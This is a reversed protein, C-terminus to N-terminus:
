SIARVVSVLTVPATAYDEVEVGTDGGPKVKAAAAMTGEGVGSENLKLQVVAVDFGERPKADPLGGGVFHAPADTVITIVTGKGPTTRQRAWRINLKQGSMELFGAVPAKRLAALFAASGGQKLADEMAKLNKDDTYRDVQITVPVDGVTQTGKVRANTHFVDPGKKRSQAAAPGAASPMTCAFVVAAATALVLGRYKSDFRSTM